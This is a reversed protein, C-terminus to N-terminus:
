LGFFGKILGKVGTKSEQPKKDIKDELSPLEIYNLALDFFLPKCPIPKYSPPFALINPKGNVLNEDEFYIDWRECLPIKQLKSKDVKNDKDDDVTDDMISATQLKYKSENLDGRLKKLESEISELKKSDLENRPSRKVSERLQPLDSDLQKLYSEVKFCFGVAEKFKKNTSFFLCIYFARLAKYFLVLFDADSTFSQDNSLGPLNSLDKYNKSLLFFM